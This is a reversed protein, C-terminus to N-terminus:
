STVRLVESESFIHDLGDERLGSVAYFLGGHNLQTAKYEVEEGAKNKVLITCNSGGMFVVKLNM